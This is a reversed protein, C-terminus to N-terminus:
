KFKLTYLCKGRPSNEFFERNINLGTGVGDICLITGSCYAPVEYYCNFLGVRKYVWSRFNNYAMICNVNGSQQNGPNGVSKGITYPRYTIDRNKYEIIRIPDDKHAVSDPADPGSVGHHRSSIGHALEHAVVTALHETYSCSLSIHQISALDQVFEYGSRVHMTDIVIPNVNEPTNPAGYAHGSEGDPLRGLVLKLAYQDGDHSTNSNFNINRNEAVEFIYFPVVDIGAARKLREM